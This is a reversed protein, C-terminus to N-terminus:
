AFSLGLWATSVPCSGGFVARFEEERVIGAWDQDIREKPAELEFPSDSMTTGKRSFKLVAV